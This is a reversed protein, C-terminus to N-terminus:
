HRTLDEIATDIEKEAEALAAAEDVGDVRRAAMEQMSNQIRLLKRAAQAQAAMGCMQFFNVIAEELAERAQLYAGDALREAFAEADVGAKECQAQCVAHLMDVVTWPEGRLRMLLPLETADASGIIDFGEDRLRKATRANISVIWDTAQNDTFKAM